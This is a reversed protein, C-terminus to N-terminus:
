KALMWTLEHKNHILHHLQSGPIALFQKAIDYSTDGQFKLTCIYNKCLGSELWHNVWELLKEPYCAVDSFIWDVPGVTEPTM